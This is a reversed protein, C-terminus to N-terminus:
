QGDETATERTAVIDSTTRAVVLTTTLGECTFSVHSESMGPDLRLAVLLQGDAPIHLTEDPPNITIGRAPRVLVAKGRSLPHFLLRVTM